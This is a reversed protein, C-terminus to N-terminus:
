SKMKNINNKKHGRVWLSIWLNLCEPGLANQVIMESISKSLYMNKNTCNLQLLLFIVLKLHMISDTHEDSVTMIEMVRLHSLTLM